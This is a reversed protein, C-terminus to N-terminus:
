EGRLEARCASCPGYLRETVQVRCRPCAFTALPGRELHAPRRLPPEAERIPRRDRCAHHEEVQGAMMPLGCDPCTPTPGMRLRALREAKRIAPWDWGRVENADGETLHGLPPVDSM